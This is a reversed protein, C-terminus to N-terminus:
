KERQEDETARFEAVLERMMMEARFGTVSKYPEDQGDPLNLAGRTALTGSVDFLLSRSTSINQTEKRQAPTINSLGRPTLLRRLKATNGVQVCARRRVRAYRQLRGEGSRFGWSDTLTEHFALNEARLWEGRLPGCTTNISSNPATYFTRPLGLQDPLPYPLSSSKDYVAKVSASRRMERSRTSSFSLLSIVAPRHTALLKNFSLRAVIRGANQTISADQQSLGKDAPREQGEAFLIEANIQFIRQIVSRMREAYSPARQVKCFTLAVSIITHCVESGLLQSYNNLSHTASNRAISFSCRSLDGASLFGAVALILCHLTCSAPQVIPSFTHIEVLAATSYRISYERKVSAFLIINGAIDRVHSDYQVIGNTPPNERPDGTARAEENRRRETNVEIVTNNCAAERCQPPPGVESRGEELTTESVGKQFGTFLPCPATASSPAKCADRGREGAPPKSPHLSSVLINQHSRSAGRGPTPSSELHCDSVSHINGCGLPRCDKISAAQGLTRSRASNHVIVPSQPVVVPSTNTAHISSLTHFQRTFGVTRSVARSCQSQRPMSQVSNPLKNSHFAAYRYPVRRWPPGSIQDRAPDSVSQRVQSEHRVVGTTPQRDRRSSREWGQMGASLFLISLTPRSKLYQSGIKAFHPIFLFRFAPAPSFPLDGLFGVPWRCRKARKKGTIIRSNGWRSDFGTRKLLPFLELWNLTQRTSDIPREPERTLTARIAGESRLRSSAFCCYGNFCKTDPWPPQATLSNAEWCPSGPPEFGPRNVGSKRFHFNHRVIGRAPPNQCPAGARENRRQEM